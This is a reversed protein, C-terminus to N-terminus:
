RKKLFAINEIELFKTEKFVEVVCIVLGFFVYVVRFCGGGRIIFEVRGM